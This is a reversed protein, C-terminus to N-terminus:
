ARPGEGASEATTTAQIVRTFDALSLTVFSAEVPSGWRRQITAALPRHLADADARARDVSAALLMQRATRARLAWTTATSSDTKELEVTCTAADLHAGPFGHGRLHSILEAVYQRNLQKSPHGM